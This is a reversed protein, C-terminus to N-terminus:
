IKTMELGRINDVVIMVLRASYKLWKLVMKTLNKSNITIIMLKHWQYDCKCGFSHVGINKLKYM